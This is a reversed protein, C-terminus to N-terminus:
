NVKRTAVVFAVSSRPSKSDRLRLTVTYREREYPRVSIITGAVSKDIKIDPDVPFDLPLKAYASADTTRDFAVTNGLPDYIFIDVDIAANDGAGIIIYEQGPFLTIRCSYEEGVAIESSYGSRQAGKYSITTVTEGPQELARATRIDFPITTSNGYLRDLANKLAEQPNGFSLISITLFIFLKKIIFGGKYLTVM